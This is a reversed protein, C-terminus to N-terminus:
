IVKRVRMKRIKENMRGRQRKGRETLISSKELSSTQDLDTNPLNGNRIEAQIDAGRVSPPKKKTKRLAELCIGAYYRSYAAVEEMM